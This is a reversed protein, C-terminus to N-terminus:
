GKLTQLSSLTIDSWGVVKRIILITQRVVIDELLRSNAGSGSSLSTFYSPELQGVIWELIASILIEQLCVLMKSEYKSFMVSLICLGFYNFSLTM